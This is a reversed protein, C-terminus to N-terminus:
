KKDIFDIQEISSQNLIIIEKNDLSSIIFKDGLFGLSKFSLSDKQALIDKNNNNIINKIYTVKKNNYVVLSSAKGLILSTVPTFTISIFIFATIINFSYNHVSYLLSITKLTIILLMIFGSVIWFIESNRISSLLVYILIPFTILWFDIKYIFIKKARVPIKDFIKFLILSDLDKNYLFLFFVFMIFLALGVSIAFPLIFSKPIESISVLGLIDVDFTTWYGILYLGGCLFLYLIIATTIPIYKIIKELM